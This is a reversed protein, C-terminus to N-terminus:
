LNNLVLLEQGKLLLKLSGLWDALLTVHTVHTVDSNLFVGKKRLFAYLEKLKRNCIAALTDHTGLHIMYVMLFRKKRWM